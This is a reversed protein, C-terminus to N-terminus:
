TRPPRQESLALAGKFSITQKLVAWLISPHFLATPKRIFHLVEYFRQTIRDNGSCLRLVRILYWNLANTYALRKGRSQPYLFDSQTALLWPIEIVKAAKRFFRRYVNAPVAQGKPCSELLLRLQDVELACASMGQGYVPNFTSIADGIVLLGAPFRSLRDYRRWKNAPFKFMSIPTLPKADKIAAYFDPLELTRAFELCGQDDDPPSDNLFGVQSVRWRGGEIPFIYGTRTSHPPTGYLAMIQWDRSEDPSPEYDRSAYGINVEVTTEVPKEYGLSELWKPTQSGRGSADIVLDADLREIAGDSGGSRVEVGTIRSKTLDTLLGVVTHHSQIQINTDRKLRQRLHAELFPRTQWYSTLGSEFRAKWVGAHYWCLERAFDCVVSGAAALESSFGPFLEDIVRMGESFIVHVHQGQPVGKRGEFNEAISDREVITVQQFHKSLVRATLLGAISGGIVIAHKGLWENPDSM